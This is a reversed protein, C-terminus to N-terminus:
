YDNTVEQHNYMHDQFEQDFSLDLQQGQSVIDPIVTQEPVDLIVLDSDIIFLCGRYENEMFHDDKDVPKQPVSVDETYKQRPNRWRYKNREWRLTQCRSFTMLQPRERRRITAREMDEPLDMGFQLSLLEKVKIIGADRDKSAKMPHIGVDELQQALTKPNNQDTNWAAPDCLCFDHKRGLTYTEIEKIYDALESINCARFLEAVNYINPVDHEIEHAYGLSDVWMWLVAHPVKPHPDILMVLTGAEKSGEEPLPFEDIIWPEQDMAMNYVRGGRPASKGYIRIAVEAEDRCTAKIDDVMKQTMIPNDYSSMEVAYVHKDNGRIGPIWIEENTWTVGQEATMGMTLRGKTTSIRMKSQAWHGSPCEEDHQITDRAAGGLSLVSQEYTKFEVFSGNKWTIRRKKDNSYAVEALDDKTAWQEYAPGIVPDVFNTYDVTICRLKCPPYRIWLKREYLDTLWKRVKPDHGEEIIREMNLRQLPHWGEAQMIMDIICATTKGSQNGGRIGKIMHPMIFWYYLKENPMYFSRGQAMEWNQAAKIMDKQKTKPFKDFEGSKVLRSMKKLLALPRDKPKELYWYM